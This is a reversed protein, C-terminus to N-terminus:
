LLSRLNTASDALVAADLPKGSAALRKFAAMDRGQNVTAVARLRGEADLEIVSFADDEVKGRLLVPGTGSFFGLTQLNCQYQDSWLWPTQAYCEESGLMNAAAVQPQHEAVQWSEVRVHRGLLPNFHSTVDGAAFIHPDSTRCREDVVIGNEVRLGIATALEVNPLAGIGVLIEDAVCEGRSSEIILGHAGRRIASPLTDLCVNVGANRHLALLYEGIAAPMVRQLLSSAPELVTVECGLKRASAAVELGIFGGGLIVLRKGAALRSRLQRAQELTRLYLLEVGEEVPGPYPRARSGTTLLLKQYSIREGNALEVQRAAPDVNRVRHGLRLEIHQHEYFDRDQIFARAEDEVNFLADKSLIPRDYPLEAEDGVICVQAAPALSRLSEAARRGAQGAGIILYDAHM